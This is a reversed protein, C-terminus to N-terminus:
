ARVTRSSRAEGRGLSPAALSQEELGALWRMITGRRYRRYRGLAVHPIRGARTEAYVWGTTMRLLAAVEEATLLDDDSPVRDGGLQANLDPTAM